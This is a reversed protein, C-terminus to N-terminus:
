LARISSEIVRFRSYEFIAGFSRTDLVRHEVTSDSPGVVLHRTMQTNSTSDAVFPHLIFFFHQFHFLQNFLELSPLLAPSHPPTFGAKLTQRTAAWFTNKKKRKVKATFLSVSLSLTFNAHFQSFFIPQLRTTICIDAIQQRRQMSFFNLNCNRRKKEDRFIM